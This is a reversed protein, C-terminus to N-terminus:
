IKGKGFNQLCFARLNNFSLSPVPDLSSDFRGKSIGSLEESPCVVELDGMLRGVVALELEDLKFEILGRTLVSFTATETCLAGSPRHDLRDSMLQKNTVSYSSFPTPTFILFLYYLLYIVRLFTKFCM